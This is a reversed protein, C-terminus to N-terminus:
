LAHAAGGARRGNRRGSARPREFDLAQGSPAARGGAGAAAGRVRVRAGHPCPRMREVERRRAVVWM